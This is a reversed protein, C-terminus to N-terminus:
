GENDNNEKDKFCPNIVDEWTKKEKKFGLITIFEDFTQPFVITKGNMFTVHTGDANDMLDTIANTFILRKREHTDRIILAEKGTTYEYRYNSDHPNMKLEM